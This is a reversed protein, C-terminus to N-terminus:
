SCATNRKLELKRRTDKSTTSQALQLLLIPNVPSFSNLGSITCNNEDHFAQLELEILVLPISVELAGDIRSSHDVIVRNRQMLPVIPHEFLMQIAGFKLNM